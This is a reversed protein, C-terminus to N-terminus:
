GARAGRATRLVIRNTPNGVRSPASKRLEGGADKVAREYIARDRRADYCQDAHRECPAAELDFTM